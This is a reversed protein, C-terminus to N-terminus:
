GLPMADGYKMEVIKSASPGSRFDTIILKRRASQAASRANSGMLTELEKLGREVEGAHACTIALSLAQGIYAEDSFEDATIEAKAEEISARLRAIEDKYYGAFDRSAYLYRGDKWRYIMIASPAAAHSLHDYVEWRADTVLLEALGDNDLDAINRLPAAAILEVKHGNIRYIETPNCGWCNGGSSSQVIVEKLGDRNIDTANLRALEESLAFSLFFESRRFISRAMQGDGELVRFEFTAGPDKPKRREFIAALHRVTGGSDAEVAEKLLLGEAALRAVEAQFQRSVQPSPKQQEALDVAGALSRDESAGRCGVTALAIAVAIAIMFVRPKDSKM